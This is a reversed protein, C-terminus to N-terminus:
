IRYDTGSHVHRDPWVPCLAEVAEMLDIWDSLDSKGVAGTDLVQNGALLDRAEDAKNPISKQSYNM